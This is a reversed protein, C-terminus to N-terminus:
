VEYGAPEIASDVLSLSCSGRFRFDAEGCSWSCLLPVKHRQQKFAGPKHVSGNNHFRTCSSLVCRRPRGMCLHLARLDHCVAWASVVEEACRMIPSVAGARTSPRVFQRRSTWSSVSSNALSRIAIFQAHVRREHWSSVRFHSPSMKVVITRRACAVTRCSSKGVCVRQCHLKEITVAQWSLEAGPRKNLVFRHM